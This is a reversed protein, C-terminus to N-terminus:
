PRKTQLFLHSVKRNFTCSPFAPKYYRESPRHLVFCLFEENLFCSSNKMWNGIENWFSKVLPCEWFLHLLTESSEKCFSCQDNSKIGIKLLFCNTALKRHLFKFQFVRLKAENTCVFALTHSKGWDITDFIVLYPVLANVENAYLNWNSHCPM